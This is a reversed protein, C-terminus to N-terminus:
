SAVGPPRLPKCSLLVVQTGPKARHQLSRWKFSAKNNRLTGSLRPNEFSMYSIPGEVFLSGQFVQLYLVWPSCIFDLVSSPECFAFKCGRSESISSLGRVWAVMVSLSLANRVM